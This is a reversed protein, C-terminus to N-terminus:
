SGKSLQLSRASRRVTGERGYHEPLMRGLMRLSIERARERPMARPITLMEQWLGENLAALGDGLVSAEMGAADNSTELLEGCLQVLENRYDRDSAACVKRYVRRHKSDAWFAHMVSLRKRSSVRPAYLVLILARLRDAAAAGAEELAEERARRWEQTLFKLTEVLLAEKSEFRLNVIGRSLGAREVVKSVTTNSLGHEDISAITAELLKRRNAAKKQDRKSPAQM